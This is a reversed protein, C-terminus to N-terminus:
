KKDDVVVVAAAETAATAVQRKNTMLISGALMAIVTGFQLGVRLRFFTQTRKRDGKRLSLAAGM